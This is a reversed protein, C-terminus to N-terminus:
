ATSPSFFADSADLAPHKKVPHDVAGSRRILGGQDAAQQRDFQRRQHGQNGKVRTAAKDRAAASPATGTLNVIGSDDTVILPIRM